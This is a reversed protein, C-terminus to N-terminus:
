QVVRSPDPRRTPHNAAHALRLADVDAEVELVRSELRALTQGMLRLEVLLARVQDELGDLRDFRREFRRLMMGVVGTVIAGGILAVLTETSM